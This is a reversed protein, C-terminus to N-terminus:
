EVNGIEMRVTFPVDCSLAVFFAQLVLLLGTGHSDVPFTQGFIQTHDFDEHLSFEIAKTLMDSDVRVGFEQVKKLFKSNRVHMITGNTVILDDSEAVLQYVRQRTVGCKEVVTRVKVGEGRKVKDNIFHIANM